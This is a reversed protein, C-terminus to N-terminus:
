AFCAQQPSTPPCFPRVAHCCHDGLYILVTHTNAQLIPLSMIHCCCRYCCKICALATTGAVINHQGSQCRCARTAAAAACCGTSTRPHCLQLTTISSTLLLLLLLLLQLQLLLQPLIVKAHAHWQTNLTCRPWPKLAARSLRLRAPVHKMNKCTWKRSAITAAAPM